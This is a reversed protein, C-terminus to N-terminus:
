TMKKEHVKYAESLRKNEQTPKDLADLFILTDQKSLNIAEEHEIIKTANEIASFLVFSNISSIGSLAAARSLLAQTEVSVRATIRPSSTTM